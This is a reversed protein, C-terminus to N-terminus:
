LSHGLAQLFRGAAEKTKALVVFRYLDLADGRVKATHEAVKM